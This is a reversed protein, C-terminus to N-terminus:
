LYGHGMVKVKSRKVEFDVSRMWLEHPMLTHLKMIMPQNCLWNYDPFWKCIVMRWSRQSKSRLILLACGQSMPLLHIFKWSWSNILSDTITRFGYVFLWADHGQGKVKLGWFWYPADMVWPSYTYSTENSCRLIQIQSVTPFGIAQRRGPRECRGGCMLNLASNQLEALFEEQGGRSEVQRGKSQSAIAKVM